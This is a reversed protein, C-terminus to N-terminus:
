SSKIRETIGFGGLFGNDDFFVIIEVVLGLIVFDLFIILINILFHELGIHVFNVVHVFVLNEHVVLTILHSIILDLLSLLNEMLILSQLFFGHNFKQVFCVVFIVFQFLGVVDDSRLFHNLVLVMSGVDNSGIFFVLFIDLFINDM